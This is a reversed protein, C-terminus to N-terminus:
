VLQYAPELFLDTGLSGVFSCEGKVPRTSSIYILAEKGSLSTEMQNLLNIKLNVLFFRYDYNIM